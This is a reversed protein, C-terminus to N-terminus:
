PGTLIGKVPRGDSWRGMDAFEPTGATCTECSRGYFACEMLADLLKWYGYFDLADVRFDWAVWRMKTVGEPLHPACVSFHDAVLPPEGYRDSQLIGYAKREPPIRRAGAFIRRARREGTIRDEDGVLVVLRIEEPLEEPSAMRFWPPAGPQIVMLARPVPLGNRAGEVAMNVSISGGMSHGVVALREVEPRVPGEHELRDLAEKTSQMATAAVWIGLNFFANQYVPYIVINGRRVIHDIWARYPGPEVASWGHLFVVVPASEPVPEAPTFIYYARAAWGFKQVEVREHAYDKGGPGSRPQVPPRAAGATFEEWSYSRCGLAACLVACTAAVWCFTRQIHVSKRM